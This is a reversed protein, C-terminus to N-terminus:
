EYNDSNNTLRKKLMEKFQMINDPTLENNVLGRKGQLDFWSSIQPYQKLAKEGLPTNFRPTCIMISRTYPINLEVIGSILKQLSEKTEGENGIMFFALPQIGYSKILRIKEKIVSTTIGKHIINLIRDSMSEIGLWINVVGMSKLEKLVEEDICDVRTQVTMKLRINRQVIEKRLEFVWNKNLTFVEDLFFIEKVGYQRYCIELEKALSVASRYNINKGFYNHCFSCSFPCGRGGQAVARRTQIYPINNYYNTGFYEEMEVKDYSPFVDEPILPHQLEMDISNEVIISNAIYAINPVRRLDTRQKLTSLLRPLTEIIEGFIYFDAKIDAYVLEKNASLHAGYVIITKFPFKKKISKITKVTYAYRFDVFYNQVQDIPTTTVVVVDASELKKLLNKLSMHHVRCDLISVCFHYKELITATYLMDLPQQLFSTGSLFDPVLMCVNM